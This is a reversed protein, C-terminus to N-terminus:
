KGECKGEFPWEGWAVDLHELVHWDLLEVELSALHECTLLGSLIHNSKSTSYVALHDVPHPELAEDSSGEWSGEENGRM